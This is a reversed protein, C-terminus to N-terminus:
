EVSTKDLSEVAVWWTRQERESWAAAQKLTAEELRFPFCTAPELLLSQDIGPQSVLNVIWLYRFFTRDWSVRTGARGDEAQVTAVGAAPVYLVEALPQDHAPVSAAEACRAYIVEDPRFRGSWDRDAVAGELDEAIKWGPEVALM